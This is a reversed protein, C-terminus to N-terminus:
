LQFSVICAKKCFHLLNCAHFLVCYCFLLFHFDIETLFLQFPIKYIVLYCIFCVEFIVSFIILQRTTRRWSQSRRSMRTLVAAEEKSIYQLRKEFDDGHLRFIGNWIRSIFGKRKKVTAAATPSTEKKEGDGVGKDDAM